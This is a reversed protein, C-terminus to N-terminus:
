GLRNPGLRVLEGPDRSPAEPKSAIAALLVIEGATQLRRRYSRELVLRRFM